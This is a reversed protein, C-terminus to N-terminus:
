DFEFSSEDNREEVREAGRERMKGEEKEKIRELIGLDM